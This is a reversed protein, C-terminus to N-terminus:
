LLRQAMIDAYEEDEGHVMGEDQEFSYNSRIEINPSSEVMSYKNISPIPIGLPEEMAAEASPSEEEIKVLAWPSLFRYNAASMGEIFDDMNTFM